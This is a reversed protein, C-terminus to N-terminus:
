DDVCVGNDAFFVLDSRHAHVTIDGHLRTAADTLMRAAHGAIDLHVVRERGHLESMTVRAPIQLDGSADRGHHLDHPRVGFRKSPIDTFKEFPLDTTLINMGGLFTAVFETAPNNFVHEPPGAQEIRGARMIVLQDAISLAEIQDHTVFVVTTGLQRQLAVLEARMTTRLAADLNSFPEDMLLVGPERVLARGIGVRQRQGGSLQAPKRGLLEGLQLMDTLQTARRRRTARDVGAMRLPFEINALVTKNPYLAYNQFVMAVGRDEAAIETVDTDDIEILGTGPQELGSICRLLTTKGCGSPGLLVTISGPPIDLSVDDLAPRASREFAKSLNTCRVGVPRLPTSREPTPRRHRSESIM